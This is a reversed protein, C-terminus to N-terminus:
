IPLGRVRVPVYDPPLDDGNVYTGNASDMDELSVYSGERRLTAHVSSVGKAFGQYPSFDVDPMRRQGERSRGLIFTTRSPPLMIPKTAGQVFLFLPEHPEAWPSGTGSWPDLSSAEVKQTGGAFAASKLLFM